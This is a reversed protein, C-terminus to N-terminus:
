MQNDANNGQMQAMMDVGLKLHDHQRKHEFENSDKRIRHQMEATDKGTQHQFRAKELDVREKELMIKAKREVDDMQNNKQQGGMEMKLKQLEYQLKIKEHELKIKEQEVKTKALEVKSQESQMKAQMMMMQPNPPPPTVQEGPKPKVMGPPLTKRLRAALEDAEKFDLNQVILDAALSMQQPMSQALQMLHQASEQRQTAYSPGTTVVVDYKGVTMDNFKADKGFKKMMDILKNPDLGQYTEPKGTLAKAANGVTTNIPVFTESEDINRLRIDRETDYIEPIIENLIRGTHLVARGLNVSFEYTGIDGPRQRATIAAGTQESGPAGVDANFLGIVSKINEEGRRIQEFIAVPPQGPQQRQPPGPAEGDPNYKLFPFNEINAQAYDVEYGEFQKATGLWPAKPALAITEAAATNWYNVLKQPDKAHRILSYVYNKGEINLEKGKALVLPVYKGPFRNGDTDGDLIEACTLIRHKIVNKQTKRRKAIEPKPGLEKMREQLMALPSPQAQPMQPQTSPQGQAAQPSQQPSANQPMASPNAAPAAGQTSMQTASPAYAQQEMATAMAESIEEWDKVLEKYEEETVVTGDKLQLMEVDETEISFYEAVTVTEGDYWHENSLGSGSKVESSPLEAKPYNEKFDDKSMRDLIFGYKADKYNQDKASPDLYVLFPNRVGELYAEQLFPNEETYRTLVRWAGYGCTVMQRAAYGYIGPSNSSYEINSILGQRIKAINIDSKSDVPRVKVSPSNHLMDGVVQDIFKPLLNIQLAPRGKDARRKKEKDDWQEGNAFKLDDIAAIRNHNDADVCIKLRKMALDIIEREKKGIERAM